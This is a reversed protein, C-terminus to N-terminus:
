PAIREDVAITRRRHARVMNLDRLYFLGMFLRFLAGVVPFALSFALIHAQSGYPGFLYLAAAQQTGLGGPTVPLAGIILVIPVAAAMYPLPVHVNFAGAGIWFCLVMVAFHAARLLLLVGADRWTALCHTRWCRMARLRQLWSWQPGHYMFFILVSLQLVVAMSAVGAVTHLAPSPPLALVGAFVFCGLLLGDVLNYFFLSSTSEMMAVGKSAALHLVMAGTGLHWNIPTLLYTTARLSRAEQWTLPANFRSFLQAFAGSELWFGAVSAIGWVLIFVPLEAQDSARWVAAIPIHHFLFGFVAAAVVWSLIPVFRMTLHSVM